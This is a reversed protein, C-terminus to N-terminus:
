PIYDGCGRRSHKVVINGVSEEFRSRSFVATLSHASGNLRQCARCHWATAIAVILRLSIENAGEEESENCIAANAGAFCPM